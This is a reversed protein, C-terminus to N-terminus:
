QQQAQQAARFIDGLTTRSDDARSGQVYSRWDTSTDIASLTLKRSEVDHEVVTVKVTQGVRFAEAPVKIPEETLKSLPVFGEIGEELELVVGRDLLRVIPAEVQKGLPYKNPVVKWPDEGMAKLSLSIRRKEKDVSLVMCTVTDGKQLVESPHNVKKTWSMDSVHILGDIGEKIEVFAGFPALNRVQGTIVTNLPLDAEITSWPDPEIQKIGLSIKENETDIRLVVAEVMDGVKVVQSPHKVHQTWSMESIHILGEVGQELEMFAGYDTISVIKGNVRAGEPYKTAVTKWPHEQLQKLGLSIREKRDNFDLVKVTLKQGIHVLESPHSIRGWTMDTIHLLGDVGGLDIFAGFDTINKVVGDRVQGRELTDIIQDRLRGREEELVIRRSVVINRRSKHVKIVRFGMTQGILADMDPIQRLDIQSGPLFAEIGFLDVVIGGKIRRLLTGEVVEGTEYADRIREWVKMFDARQKSLVIQGDDGEIQEIYVDVHAGIQLEEPNKFEGRPIVGESKFSIDVIVNTDDYELITGAVIKGEEVGELTASYANLLAENEEASRTSIKGEIELLDEETGYLLQAM